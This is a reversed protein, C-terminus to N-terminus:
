RRWGKEEPYAYIQKTGGIQNGDKGYIWGKHCDRHVPHFRGDTGKIYMANAAKMKRGCLYCEVQTEM